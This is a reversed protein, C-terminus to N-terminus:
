RFKAREPDRTWTHVPAGEAVRARYEDFMEHIAERAGLRYGLSRLRERQWRAGTLGREARAAFTSLHRRAEDDNVGNRVLGREAREILSLALPAADFQVLEGSRELFTLSAGTGLQAARYFNNEVREFPLEASWDDIDDSLDLALGIVFASTAMMDTVTPGSPFARLEIRLHGGETSDYVARNWNWVTGHHLRLEGLEPVGGSRVVSEPDSEDSLIPLLPPHLRVSQEFLEHAGERLWGLGFNVRAVRPLPDYESRADVAQKFLVIRTEDWLRHGLFTPSNGALALAPATALQVANYVRRFATPPVRLHLQMSTAAGELTVDDAETEFPDDGDIRLGFTGKRQRRLGDALARYRAADTMSTRRLDSPTLTPLIGISVLGANHQRAAAEARGLAARLEAETTSFPSGSLATPKSNYELNFRDIEETFQRDALDRLIAAAVPQARGSPSVLSLELEAGLSLPGEGWAPRKLLTDLARLSGILRESFREYDSPAFVDTTVALGM